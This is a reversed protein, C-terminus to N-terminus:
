DSPLASLFLVVLMLPSSAVIPWAGNFPYVLRKLCGKPGVYLLQHVLAHHQDLQSDRPDWALFSVVSGWSRRSCCRARRRGCAAYRSARAELPCTMKARTPGPRTRPCCGSLPNCLGRAAGLQFRSPRDASRCDSASVSATAARSQLAVKLGQQEDGASAVVLGAAVSCYAM